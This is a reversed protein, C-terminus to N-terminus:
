LAMMVLPSDSLAQYVRDIAPKDYFMGTLTISMFRQNKSLSEKISLLDKEPITERAVRLVEAQFEPTNKGMVKIPFRAPFEILTDQEHALATKKEYDQEDM